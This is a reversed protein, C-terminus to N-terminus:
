EDAADSTYLLCGEGGGITASIEAHGIVPSAPDVEAFRTLDYALREDPSMRRLEETTKPRARRGLSFMGRVCAVVARLDVDGEAVVRRRAINRRSGPNPRHTVARHTAPSKKTTTAAALPSSLLRRAGVTVNVDGGRARIAGRIWAAADELLERSTPAPVAGPASSFSAAAAAAAAAGTPLLVVNDCAPPTVQALAGFAPRREADAFFGDAAVCSTVAGLRMRVRDTPPSTRVLLLEAALTTAETVSAAVEAASEYTRAIVCVRYPKRAGGGDSRAAASRVSALAHALERVSEAAACPAVAETALWTASGSAYRRLADFM